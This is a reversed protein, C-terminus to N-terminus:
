SNNIPKQSALECAYMHRNAVQKNENGRKNENGQKEM